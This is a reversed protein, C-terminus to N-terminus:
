DVKIIKVSTNLIRVFYVGNALNSLDIETIADSLISSYILVGRIDYINIPAGENTVINLKNSFPNPYIKIRKNPDYEMIGVEDPLVVVKQIITDSCNNHKAILTIFYNGTSDFHHPPPVFSNNTGSGDGFDWLYTSAGTSTNQLVLSDNSGAFLTDNLYTFWAYIPAPESVIIKKTFYGCTSNIDKIQVSYDGAALNHVTDELFTNFTQKIINNSSNLWLYNWPGIGKGAAIVKGDLYNNCSASIASTKSTATVHLIFRAAVTTDSIFFTYNSSANLNTKITTTIDELVICFDSLIISSSDISITYIGAVGVLTKVPIHTVSTVLPLSNISMDKNLSDLTSIGPVQLNSSFLKRADMTADYSNTALNDFLLITEDKYNNGTINLKLYQNFSSSLSPKLFPQNSSAKSNETCSLLPGSNNTQVWFSQSSAVMNSGGNTSVNAVWSAYQQNAPNWIYIANNINTKTWSPSSWDIASPYPNGIMVWGDQSPDGSPSYTVSFTQNFKVPPGTVDITLPVPGIYCWYGQGPIIPNTSNTAPVYGYDYIGPVTEDYTYVSTFTYSPFTSGPFGSTVFNDQWDNITVGSVPSALFRWSDPGAGLYRQMTINGSFNGLIPAIRATGNTDSILTFDYGTTSFTGSTIKLEGTIKENASLYSGASNNLTLNKFSTVSSGGIQQVVTGALTIVSGSDVFSNNNILNGYFSVTGGTFIKFNGNNTFQEQAKATFCFLLSIYFILTKM